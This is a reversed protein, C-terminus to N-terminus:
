RNAEVPKGQVGLQDLLDKRVATLNAGEDLIANVLVEKRTEPHVLRVVVLLQELM